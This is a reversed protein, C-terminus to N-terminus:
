RNLERLEWNRRLGRKLGEMGKSNQCRLVKGDTHLDATSCGASYRSKFIYQHYIYNFNIIASHWFNSLIQKSNVWFISDWFIGLWVVQELRSKFEPVSTKCDVHKDSSWLSPRLVLILIVKNWVIKESNECGHLLKGWWLATLVSFLLIIRTQIIM